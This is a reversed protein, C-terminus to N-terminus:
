SLGVAKQIIATGNTRRGSPFPGGRPENASGQACRNERKCYSGESPLLGSFFRVVHGVGGFKVGAKECAAVM